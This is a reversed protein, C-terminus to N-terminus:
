VKRASRSGNVRADDKGQAANAPSKTQGLDELPATPMSLVWQTVICTGPRFAQIILMDHFFDSLSISVM